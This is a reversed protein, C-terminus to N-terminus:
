RKYQCKQYDSVSPGEAGCKMCDWESKRINLEDRHFGFEPKSQSQLKRKLQNMRQHLWRCSPDDAVLQRQATRRRNDKKPKKLTERRQSKPQKTTPLDQARYHLASRHQGPIVIPNGESDLASDAPLTIPTSAPPTAPQLPKLPEGAQALGDIANFIVFTLIACRIVNPM